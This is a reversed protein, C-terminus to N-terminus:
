NPIVSLKSTLGAVPPPCSLPGLAKNTNSTSANKFPGASSFTSASPPSISTLLPNDVIYLGGPITIVPLGTLTKLSDNTEIRFEGVRNLSAPLGVLHNLVRFNFISIGQIDGSLNELGTLSNIDDSDELTLSGVTTLSSLYSLSNLTITSSIDLRGTISQLNHLGSLQAINVEEITLNGGISTINELGNLNAFPGAEVHLTGVINDCTGHDDVFSDAQAQTTLSISDPVCDVALSDNSFSLTFVCAILLTFQLIPKDKFWTNIGSNNM